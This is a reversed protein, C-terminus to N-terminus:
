NTSIKYGMGRVTKIIEGDNDDLKERIRKIYVTLTNDNVFNGAIDWVKDLIMDRTIIKNPNSFLLLLIKYELSTFVIEKGDKTVQANQMNLQINGIKIVDSNNNGETKNYRRMVTSIRSILERVRFPKTIYDDAGLDLGAIIDNEEDKATLFIIPLDQKEKIYKCLELGNGDPLSVDLIALDIQSNDIKGKAESVCKAVTVNYREQQLAYKLGLAITESDEVLLITKM